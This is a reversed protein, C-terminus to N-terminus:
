GPEKLALRDYMAMLPDEQPPARLATRFVHPIGNKWWQVTGCSSCTHATPDGLNFAGLHWWRKGCAECTHGHADLAYAGLVGIGLAIAIVGITGIPQGPPKWPPAM